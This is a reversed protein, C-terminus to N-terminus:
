QNKDGRRPPGKKKENRPKSDPRLYDRMEKVLREFKEVQEPTCISKVKQAQEFRLIEINYENGAIKGALSRIVEERTDRNFMEANMSDREIRIDAVLKQEKEIFSARISKIQEVQEPTLRLERELIASVDRNGEQQVPEPRQPPLISKFVFAGIAFFNLVALVFVIRLLLKKQAFIDM